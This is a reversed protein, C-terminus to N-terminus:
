KLIPGSATVDIYFFMSDYNWFTCEPTMSGAEFVAETATNAPISLTQTYIYSSAQPNPVLRGIINQAQTAHTNRVKVRIQRPLGRMGRPFFFGYGAHVRTYVAPNLAYDNCPYIMFGARPLIAGQTLKDIIINTGSGQITFTVPSKINVNELLTETCLSADNFGNAKVYGKSVVLVVTYIHDSTDNNAIVVKLVEPVQYSLWFLAAPTGLQTQWQISARGKTDLTWVTNSHWCHGIYLLRTRRATETTITAIEKKQGSAISTSFVLVDFDEIPEFPKIPIEIAKGDTTRGIIYGLIAGM